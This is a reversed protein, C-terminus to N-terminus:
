DPPRRLSGYFVHVGRPPCMTIISNLLIRPLDNQDLQTLNVRIVKKKLCVPAKKMPHPRPFNHGSKTRGEPTWMVSTRSYKVKGMIQRLLFRVKKKRRWRAFM